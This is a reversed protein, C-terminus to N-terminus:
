IRIITKGRAHGSQLARIAAATEALEYTRDVAPSVTGAEVLDRLADLHDTSEKSALMRLDQRVFPSLLAARVSREFGGLWRGGTEGGVIV